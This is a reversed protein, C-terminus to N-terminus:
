FINLNRREALSGLRRRWMPPWQCRPMKTMKSLDVEDDDGGGGSDFNLISSWRSLDLNFICIHSPSPLPPPDVVPNPRKEESILLLIYPRMYFPGEM